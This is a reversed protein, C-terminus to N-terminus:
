DQRRVQSRRNPRDQVVPSAEMPGVQLTAGFLHTSYAVSLPNLLSALRPGPKDEHAPMWLRQSVGSQAVQTAHNGCYPL